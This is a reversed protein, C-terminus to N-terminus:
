KLNLEVWTAAVVQYFRGLSRDARGAEVLLGKVLGLPEWNGTSPLIKDLDAPAPSHPMQRRTTLTHRPGSGCPAGCM